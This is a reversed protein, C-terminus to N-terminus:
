DHCIEVFYDSEIFDQDRFRVKIDTDPRYFEYYKPRNWATADVCEQDFRASYSFYEFSATEHVYMNVYVTYFQGTTFISNNNATNESIQPSMKNDPTSSAFFATL